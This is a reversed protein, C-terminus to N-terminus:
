HPLERYCSWGGAMLMTIGKSISYSSSTSMRSSSLGGGLCVCGMAVSCSFAVVEEHVSRFTVGGM